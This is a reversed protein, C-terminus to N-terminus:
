NELMKQWVINTCSKLFAVCEILSDNDLLQKEMTSTQVSVVSAFHILFSVLWYYPVHTCPSKAHFCSTFVIPLFILFFVNTLLIQDFICFCSIEIIYFPKFRIFSDHIVISNHWFICFVIWIRFIWLAVYRTPKSPLVFVLVLLDFPKPIPSM